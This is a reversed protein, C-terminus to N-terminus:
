YSFVHDAIIGHRTAIRVNFNTYAGMPQTFTRLFVNRALLWVNGAALPENWRARRLNGSYTTFGHVGDFVAQYQYAVPTSGMFEAYACYNVSTHGDARVTRGLRYARLTMASAPAPETILLRGDAFDDLFWSPGAGPLTFNVLQPAGARDYYTLGTNTPAIWTGTDVYQLLEGRQDVAYDFMGAAPYPFTWAHDFEGNRLVSVHAATNQLVERVFIGASSYIRVPWGPALPVRWRERLAADLAVTGFVMERSGDGVDMQFVVVDRRAFGGFQVGPLFLDAVPALAGRRLRFLHLRGAFLDYLLLRRGDFDLVHYRATVGPPVANSLIHRGRRDIVNLARPQTQYINASRSVLDFQNTRVVTHMFGDQAAFLVTGNALPFLAVTTNTQTSLRPAGLSEHYLELTVFGETGPTGVVVIQYARGVVADFSLFPRYGDHIRALTSLSSNTFVALICDSASAGVDVRFSGSYPATWMFWISNSGCGWYPHFPEGNQFTADETTGIALILDGVLVTRSAFNDNPPPALRAAPMAPAPGCVPAGPTRGSFSTAVAVAQARLAALKAQWTQAARQEASVGHAALALAVIAIIVCHWM